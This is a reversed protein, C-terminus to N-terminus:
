KVIELRYRPLVTIRIRDGAKLDKRSKFLRTLASFGQHSERTYFKAKFIMNGMYIEVDTERDPFMNKKKAPVHIYGQEVNYRRLVIEVGADTELKVV